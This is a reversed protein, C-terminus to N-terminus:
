RVTGEKAPLFTRQYDRISEKWWCESAQERVIIQKLFAVSKRIGEDQGITNDEHEISIAGDYGTQVLATM